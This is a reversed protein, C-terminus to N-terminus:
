SDHAERMGIWFNRRPNRGLLRRDSRLHLGSPPAEPRSHRAGRGAENGGIDMDHCCSSTVIHAHRKAFEVWDRRPPSLSTSANAKPIPAGRNAEATFAAWRLREIM